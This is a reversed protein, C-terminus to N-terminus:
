SGASCIRTTLPADPARTNSNALTFGGSSGAMRGLQRADVYQFLKSGFRFAVEDSEFGSPSMIVVKGDVLEMPHNPLLAQIKELDEVTLM